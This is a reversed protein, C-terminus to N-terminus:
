TGGVDARGRSLPGPDRSSGESQDGARLAIWNSKATAVCKVNEAVCDAVPTMVRKLGRM